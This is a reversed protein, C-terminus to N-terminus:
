SVNQVPQFTDADFLQMDSIRQVVENIADRRHVCFLVNRRPLPSCSFFVGRGDLQMERVFDFNTDQAISNILGSDTVVKTAQGVLPDETPIPGINDIENKSKVSNNYGVTLVRTCMEFQQLESGFKDICAYVAIDLGTVSVNKASLLMPDHENSQMNSPSYFYDDLLVCVNSVTMIFLCGACIVYARSKTLWEFMENHTHTNTCCQTKLHIKSRLERGMKTESMGLAGSSSYPVSSPWWQHSQFSVWGFLLRFRFIPLKNAYNIRISAQLGGCCDSYSLNFCLVM